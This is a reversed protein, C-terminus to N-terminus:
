GVFLFSQHNASCNDYVCSKACIDCCLCRGMSIHSYMDFKGFLVDRRCKTCNEMYRLMSTDSHRNLGPELLLLALSPLGDRGARGTEQVYSETDIPPGLHIVERVTSCDIGWGSPSQLLFYM